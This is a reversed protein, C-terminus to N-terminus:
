GTFLLLWINLLPMCHTALWLLFMTKLNNEYM